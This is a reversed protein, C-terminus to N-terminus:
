IFQINTKHKGSDKKDNIEVQMVACKKDHSSSNTPSPYEHTLHTEQMSEEKM